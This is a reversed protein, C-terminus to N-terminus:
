PATTFSAAPVDSYRTGLQGTALVRWYYKTNPQMATPLTGRTVHIGNQIIDPSGFLQDTDIEIRYSWAGVSAHWTFTTQVDVGVLGGTPFQTAFPQPTTFGGGHTNFSFPAGAQTEIGFGDIGFIRWYFTTGNTLTVATLFTSTITLSSDDWVIESFDSATSIQLRYHVADPMANWGFQPNTIVNNQGDIPITLIFPLPMGGGAGPGPDPTYTLNCAPLLLAAVVAVAARARGSM